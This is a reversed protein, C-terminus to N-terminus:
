DIINYSEEFISAECPYLEGHIGKLIYDGLNAMMRGELTEINLGGSDKNIYYTNLGELEEVDKLNGAWKVAKIIIPKKMCNLIM